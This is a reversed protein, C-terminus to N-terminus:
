LPLGAALMQQQLQRARAPELQNRFLSRIEAPKAGFQEALTKVSYGHRMLTPELDDIQKSLISEVIAATVPKEGLQYAAEFSLNLHQGIQLPTRLSAALLELAELEMVEEIEVGEALCAPLLWELYKKQDGILNDLPFDTIRYGIEEMTPRRLDNRLKPHGALIVSLTGNGDEIIEILRKLGTLTHAHLDHAEDVILAVPKKGKKFLERLARASKEGQGPIKVDKETSLDYFLASILLPLNIKDKEVSLSKSVIIKGDQELSEQLRRLTKTKGCGIVGTLSILKGSYVAAKIETFLQKQENTEYYGARRFERVLRYHNMVETLM